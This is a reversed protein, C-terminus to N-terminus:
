WEPVAPRDIARVMASESILSSHWRPIASRDPSSRARGIMWKAIVAGNIIEVVLRGLPQALMQVSASIDDHQGLAVRQEVARVHIQVIPQRRTERALDHGSDGREVAAAVASRVGSARCSSMRVTKGPVNGTGSSARRSASVSAATIM